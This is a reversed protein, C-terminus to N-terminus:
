CPKQKNPNKKPLSKLPRFGNNRTNFQQKRHYTQATRKKNINCIIRYKINKGKTM